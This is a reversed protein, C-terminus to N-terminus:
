AAKESLDAFRDALTVRNRGLDKSKYLARDAALILDSVSDMEPSFSAVGLSVTVPMRQWKSTEVECRLREAIHHAADTDTEPLVICMEEGGYRAIIDSERTCHTLIAAVDRLVDDGAQHGFSDNYNKFNDIDLLIVSLDVQYRNSRAFEYELHADLARRNKLGTLGDSTALSELRANAVELAQKQYELAISAELAAQEALKRETIDMATGLFRVVAGVENTVPQGVIQCYRTSGGPLEIRVDLEYKEGTILSNAHATQSILRDDPHYRKLIEIHSPPGVDPDFDFLRYMQLSWIVKGNELDYEWSGMRAVRQAEALQHQSEFLAEEARKRTTIDTATVSVGIISGDSDQIPSYRLSVMIQEAHPRALRLEMPTVIAGKIVTKIADCVAGRDDVQALV